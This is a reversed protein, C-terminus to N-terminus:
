DTSIKRAIPPTERFLIMGGCYSCRVMDQLDADSFKKMCKPNACLYYSM